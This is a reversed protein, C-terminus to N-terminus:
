AGAGGMQSLPDQTPTKGEPARPAVPPPAGTSMPGGSKANQALQMIAAPVLPQTQERGFNANLAQLARLVSQYKKGGVAYASLAKHLTPMIAKILADAAAENGAGAGPSMAPTAGPGSPGGAIPNGPMRPGAAAAALPNQAGGMPVNPM